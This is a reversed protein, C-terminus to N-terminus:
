EESSVVELLAVEEVTLGGLVFLGCDLNPEMLALNSQGIEGM